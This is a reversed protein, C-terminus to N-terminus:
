KKPKWEAALKQAEAIQAPTLSDRVIDRNDKAAAHDQAAALALWKYAQMLNGPVGAGEYYMVGLNYQAEAIGQEAALRYWHVAYTYDGREYAAKGQDLATQAAASASLAVTGVAALILSQFTTRM